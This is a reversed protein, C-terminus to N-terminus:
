ATETFRRMFASDQCDRIPKSKASALAVTTKYKYEFMSYTLIEVYGLVDCTLCCATASAYTTHASLSLLKPNMGHIRYMRGNGVTCSFSAEVTERFQKWFQKDGYRTVNVHDVFHNVDEVSATSLDLVRLEVQLM